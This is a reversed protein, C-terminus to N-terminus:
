DVRNGLGDVGRNGVQGVMNERGATGVIVDVRGGWGIEMRRMLGLEVGEMVVAQRSERRSVRGGETVTVPKM